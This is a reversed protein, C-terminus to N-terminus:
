ALGQLLSIWRKKLALNDKTDAPLKRRNHQDKIGQAWLWLRWFITFAIGQTNRSSALSFNSSFTEMVLLSRVEVIIKLHSTATVM